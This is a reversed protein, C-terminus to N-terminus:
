GIAFADSSINRGKLAENVQGIFGAFSAKSTDDLSPIWKSALVAINSRTAESQDALGNCSGSSLWVKLTSTINEALGLGTCYLIFSDIAERRVKLAEGRAGQSAERKAENDLFEQWSTPLAYPAAGGEAKPIIQNRLPQKYGQTVIACAVRYGISNTASQLASVIDQVTPFYVQVETPKTPPTAKTNGGFKFATMGGMVTPATTNNSDTMINYEM